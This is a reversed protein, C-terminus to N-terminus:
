YLACVGDGHVCGMVMCVRIYHACGMVMCGGDGDRGEGAM